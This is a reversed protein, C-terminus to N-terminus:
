TLVEVPFRKEKKALKLLLHFVSSTGFHGIKLLGGYRQFLLVSYFFVTKETGLLVM